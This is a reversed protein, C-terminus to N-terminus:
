QNHLIVEYIKCLNVSKGMYYHPIFYSFVTLKKLMWKLIIMGIRM